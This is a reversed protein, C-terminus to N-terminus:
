GQLHKICGIWNDHTPVLPVLESVRLTASSIQKLSEDQGSRFYAEPRRVEAFGIESLVVSFKELSGKRFLEHSLWSKDSM